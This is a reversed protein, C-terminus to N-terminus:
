TGQQQRNAWRMYTPVWLALTAVLLWFILKFRGSSGEAVDSCDANPTIGAIRVVSPLAAMRASWTGSDSQALRPLIVRMQQPGTVTFQALPDGRAAGRLVAIPLLIPVSVNVGRLRVDYSVRYGLSTRSPDFVTTDHLRLWPATVEQALSVPTGNSEVRINEVTACRQDLLEFSLAGPNGIFEFHEQVHARGAV